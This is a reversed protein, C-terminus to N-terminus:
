VTCGGAPDYLTTEPPEDNLLPEVPSHGDRLEAWKRGDDWGELYEIIKTKAMRKRLIRLIRWEIQRIRERSVGFVRGIEELTMGSRPIQTMCNFPLLNDEGKNGKSNMNYVNLRCSYNECARREFWLVAQYPCSGNSLMKLVIKADKETMYKKM